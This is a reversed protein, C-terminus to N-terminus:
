ELASYVKALAPPIQTTVRAGYHCAEVHAPESDACQRRRQELDPTLVLIQEGVGAYCIQKNGDGPVSKCFAVGDSPRANLDILNKVVGQFCWPQYPSGRGLSCMRIAEAHVQRAYSSIDRGLSSYCTARMAKPAKDCARAADAMDGGNNYLMVSTQMGYCASQYKEGLISCPYLQDSPDVAKFPKADNGMAAMDHGAHEDATDAAGAHEHALASAPHHPNTVNVINEMFAGGYCAHRDWDDSLLDCGEVGKKLDHKYLMTLGHGMGHVCQFRIWRQGENGRFPECLENAEKQGVSEQKGFWAQIVGHYCGSQFSESCQTFAGAVDSVNKGAAIGIAHAYVHGDAGVDSDLAALQALAGMALKVKGENALPVLQSELCKQRTSKDSCGDHLRRGLGISDSSASLRAVDATLNAAAEASSVDKAPRKACGSAALFAVFLAGSINRFNTM